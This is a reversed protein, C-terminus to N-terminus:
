KSIQSVKSIFFLALLIKWVVILTKLDIKPLFLTLLTPIDIAKELQWCKTVSTESFIIDVNTYGRLFLSRGNVVSMRKGVKNNDCIM